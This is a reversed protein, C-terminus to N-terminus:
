LSDFKGHKIPKERQKDQILVLDRRNFEIHKVQKDFLREVSDQNTSLINFDQHKNEHLKIIQNIRSQIVQKKDIAHEEINYVCFQSHILLAMNMGHEFKFTIIGTTKKKTIKDEQLVYKIKIDWSRKNEDVTNQFFNM